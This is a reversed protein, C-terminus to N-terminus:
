RGSAALDDVLHDGVAGDVEAGVGVGPLVSSVALNGLATASIQRQVPSLAKRSSIYGNAFDFRSYM